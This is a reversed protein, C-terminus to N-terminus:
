VVFELNATLKVEQAYKSTMRPKEDSQWLNFDEPKITTTVELAGKNQGDYNHIGVFETALELTKTVNKITLDGKLFNINRHVKEFSTSKFRITPRAEEHFFPNLKATSRSSDKRNVTPNIHLVFEVEADEIADDQMVVYGSFQNTTGDMYAILSGHDELLVDSQASNIINKINMVQPTLLIPLIYQQNQYCLYLFSVKLVLITEKTKQTEKFILM